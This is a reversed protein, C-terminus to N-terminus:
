EKNRILRCDNVQPDYMISKIDIEIFSDVTYDEVFSPKGMIKGQHDKAARNEVVDHTILWRNLKKHSLNLLEKLEKKVKVFIIADYELGHRIITAKFTPM